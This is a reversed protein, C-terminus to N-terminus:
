SGNATETAEFPTLPSNSKRRIFVPPKSLDVEIEVVSDGDTRANNKAKGPTDYIQFSQHRSRKKRRIVGESTVIVYLKTM